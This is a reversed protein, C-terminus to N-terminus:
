PVFRMCTYACVGHACFNTCVFTRVDICACVFRRCAEGVARVPDVACTNTSGVNACVFIPTLGAKLDERMAESLATADLAYCRQEQHSGYGRDEKTEDVDEKNAVWGKTPILRLNSGLGAINAAKQM